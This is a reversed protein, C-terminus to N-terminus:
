EISLSKPPTIHRCFCYSLYDFDILLLTIATTETDWGARLSGKLDNIPFGFQYFLIKTITQTGTEPFARLAGDSNLLSLSLLKILHRCLLVHLLLFMSFLFKGM